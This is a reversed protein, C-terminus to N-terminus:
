VSYITPLTLHTYSVPQMSYTFFDDSSLLYYLFRPALVDYRITRITLVDGNTGGNHTALWIKKLYPRINGILVDNTLFQIVQGNAPVYNSITKGQKEPLLNDVGVYSDEDVESADIRTTAYKCVEGLRVFPVGNPCLERILQSLKSM